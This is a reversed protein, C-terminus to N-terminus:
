KTELLDVLYERKRKESFKKSKPYGRIALFGRPVIFSNKPTSANMALMATLAAKDSSHSAVKLFVKGLHRIVFPFDRIIATSTVGPEVLYFSPQQNDMMAYHHFLAEVGSKSIFYQQWMSLNKEKLTDIHKTKLMACLSGQFILRQGEKLHPLLEKVLLATGVYNTKITTPIEDTFTMHKKTEILGANLVMAYFNPHEKLVISAAKVVSDNKSQDYEILDIHSNPYQKELNNKVEKAKTMNRALIVVDAHKYLLHKVISLGIGSTGGTVLVEKNALDDIQQLYKKITMAIMIDCIM